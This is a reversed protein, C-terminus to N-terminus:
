NHCCLKSIKKYMILLNEITSDKIYNDSAKDLLIKLKQINNDNNDNKDNKDNIENMHQNINIIDKELNIIRKELDDYTLIIETLSTTNLLSTVEEEM